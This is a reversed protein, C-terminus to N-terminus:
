PSHCAQPARLQHFHAKPHLSRPQQFRPISTARASAEDGASASAIRCAIRALPPPPRMGTPPRTDADAQASTRRTTRCGHQAVHARCTTEAATKSATCVQLPPPAGARWAHHAAHPAPFQHARSAPARGACQGLTTPRMLKKASSKPKCISRARARSLRTRPAQCASECAHSTRGPPQQPSLAAGVPQASCLPTRASHAPAAPVRARIHMLSSSGVHRAVAQAAARQRGAVRLLRV